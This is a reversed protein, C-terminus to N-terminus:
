PPGPDRQRGLFSNKRAIRFGGVRKLHQRLRRRCRNAFEIVEPTRYDPYTWRHDIWRKATYTLTVEGFIGKGLYLRHDRDKVTALVLKAQTIYGPDLNLPRAAGGRFEEAAEWEWANTQVKWDALGGPDCPEGLAVLTKRLDPGMEATYYGGAIFPFPETKDVSEGWQHCIQRFAWAEVEPAGAIIAIFRIVPEIPRTKAM